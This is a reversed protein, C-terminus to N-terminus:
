KATRRTKRRSPGKLAIKYAQHVVRDLIADAVTPDGIHDHWKTQPLQSTIVTSRLADRDEILELIDHRQMETLSGIGWDDLVVLDTKAFRSLLRPYTGDARALKLESLLRPMRRYLVRYGMRCAKNALACAIYTKGTGTAGTIIVSNHHEIWQCRALERITAKNLNRRAPTDIDEPCASPIRLKAESLRRKLKRNQRALHEVDVLLGLREDFSLQATKPEKQQTLWAEAMAGMRMAYLKELTPENLM